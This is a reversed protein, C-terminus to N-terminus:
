ILAELRFRLPEVDPRGDIILKRALRLADIARARQRGGADDDEIADVIRVLLAVKTGEDDDDDWVDEPDKDGIM